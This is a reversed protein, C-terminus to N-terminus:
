EAGIEYPGDGLQCVACQWSDVWACKGSEGALPQWEACLVRGRGWDVVVSEGCSCRRLECPGTYQPVKVERAEDALEM